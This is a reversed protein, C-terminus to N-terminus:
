NTEPRDGNLFATMAQAVAAPQDLMSLVHADDIESGAARCCNPSGAATRAAHGQGGLVM